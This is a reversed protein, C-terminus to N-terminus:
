LPRRACAPNSPPSGPGPASPGADGMAAHNVFEGHDPPARSVQRMVSSNPTALKMGNKDSSVDVTMRKEFNQKKEATGLAPM